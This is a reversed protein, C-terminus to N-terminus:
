GSIFGSCVYLEHGNIQKLSVSDEDIMRLILRLFIPALFSRRLSLQMEECLISLM